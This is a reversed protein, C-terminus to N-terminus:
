VTWEIAEYAARASAADSADSIAKKGLLRTREIAHSLDAWAETKAIVIQACDWLTAGELGVSAALTPFQAVREAESLANAAAQGIGHVANAQDRKEAYTMAMGSGPTLYRMRVREADDDVRSLWYSTLDIDLGLVHRVDALVPAGGSTEAWYEVDDITIPHHERDGPPWSPRQRHVALVQSM